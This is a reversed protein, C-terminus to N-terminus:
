NLATGDVEAIEKVNYASNEKINVVFGEELNKRNGFPVFVRSGIQVKPLLAEPIKYDFVRNLDKANSDLIIEAIM